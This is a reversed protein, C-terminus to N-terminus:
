VPNPTPTQEPTPLHRENRDAAKESQGIQKGSESIEAINVGRSGVDVDVEDRAEGGSPDSGENLILDDDYEIASPQIEMDPIDPLQQVIVPEQPMEIQVSLTHFPHDPDFMIEEIFKVDREDTVTNAKPDWIKWINSATYGVLYGVWARPAM